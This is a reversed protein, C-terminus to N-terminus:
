KDNAKHKKDGWLMAVPLMFMAFSRLQFWVHNNWMREEHSKMKVMVLGVNRYMYNKAYKNVAKIEIFWCLIFANFSGRGGQDEETWAHLSRFPLCADVWLGQAIAANSDLFFSEWSFSGMLWDAVAWHKEM